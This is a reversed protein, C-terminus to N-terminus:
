FAPMRTTMIVPSWASVARADGRPEADAIAFARDRTAVDLVRSSSSSTPIAASFSTM